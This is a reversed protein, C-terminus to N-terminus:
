WFKWWPDAEPDPVARPEQDLQPKIGLEWTALVALGTLFGTIFQRGNM